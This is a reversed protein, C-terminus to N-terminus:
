EVDIITKVITQTEGGTYSYVKASTFVSEREASVRGRKDPTYGLPELSAAVM